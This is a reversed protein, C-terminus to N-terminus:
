TSAPSTATVSSGLLSGGSTYLGTRRHASYEGSAGDYRWHAVAVPRGAFRLVLSRRSARAAPFLVQRM